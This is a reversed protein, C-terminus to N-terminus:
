VTARDNGGLWWQPTAQLDQSGAIFEQIELTRIEALHARIDLSQCYAMASAHNMTSTENAFYYCGLEEGGVWGYPCELHFFILPHLTNM